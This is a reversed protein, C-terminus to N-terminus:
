RLPKCSWKVMIPPCSDVRESWCRLSNNRRASLARTSASGSSAVARMFCTSATCPTADHGLAGNRQVQGGRALLPTKGFRHIPAQPGADGGDGGPAVLDGGDSQVLRRADHALVLEL